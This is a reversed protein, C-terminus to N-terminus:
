TGPVLPRPRHGGAERAQSEATVAAGRQRSRLRPTPILALGLGGMGITALAATFLQLGEPAGITAVALLSGFILCSSGWRPLMRRVYTAAGFAVAGPVLSAEAAWVLGGLQDRLAAQSFAGVLLAYLCVFAALVCGVGFAIAGAQGVTAFGPRQAMALGVVIFPSALLVLTALAAPGPGFGDLKTWVVTGFATLALLITATGLVGSRLNRTM